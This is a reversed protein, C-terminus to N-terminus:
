DEAQLPDQRVPERQDDDENGAANWAQNVADEDADRNDPLFEELFATKGQNVGSGTAM